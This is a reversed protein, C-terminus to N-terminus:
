TFPAGAPRARLAATAERAVRADLEIQAKLAPLGDFRREDRVREVLAVRLRAGYLDSAHDFLHVEVRLEGAGGTVTPRVGVNAVGTAVPAPAGDVRDAAVAYVGTKPLMEVVAGLNATPFGITRGRADGHVVVGEFSHHRGLLREAERVDGTAIAARVRTSSVAGAEDGVLAVEAAEFGLRAGSARLSAIDGARRAGYRFGEGVLVLRARLLRAVREAFAEPTSAAFALDFPQVYLRAVGLRALLAARREMTTVLAPSGKGLVEGPHPSFTLVSVDALGLRAAEERARAVVAAHGRHVGDFNGVVVVQERESAPADGLITPAPSTM